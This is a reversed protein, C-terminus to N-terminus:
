EYFYLITTGNYAGKLKIMADNAYKDAVLNVDGSGNYARFVKWVQELTIEGKTCPNKNNAITDILQRIHAAMYYLDAEVDGGAIGKNAIDRKHSPLMAARSPYNSKTYSITGQLTKDLMNAIGSSGRTAKEIKKIGTKDSIGSPIGTGKDVINLVTQLNREVAQGIKKWYPANTANEQQLLVALIEYPIEHYESAEKAWRRINKSNELTTPNIPNGFPKNVSLPSVLKGTYSQIPKVEDGVIKLPHSEGCKCKKEEKQQEALLRAEEATIGGGASASLIGQSAPPPTVNAM